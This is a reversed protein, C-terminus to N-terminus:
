KDQISKAKLLMRKFHKVANKKNLATAYICNDKIILKRKVSTLKASSSLPFHADVSQFEAETIVGTALNLQYCTHGKQPHLSGILKLEKKIPKVESVETKDQFQQEVIKM